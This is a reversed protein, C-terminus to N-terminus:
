KEISAEYSENKQGITVEPSSPSIRDIAEM